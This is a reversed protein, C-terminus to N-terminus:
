GFNCVPIGSGLVAGKKRDVMWLIKGNGKTFIGLRIKIQMMVPDLGIWYQLHEKKMISKGNAFVTNSQKEIVSSINHLYMHHQNRLFNQCITLLYFNTELVFRTNSLM